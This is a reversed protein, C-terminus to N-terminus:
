FTLIILNPSVEVATPCAPVQKRLLSLFDQPNGQLTLRIIATSEAVTGWSFSASSTGPLNNIVDTLSEVLRIQERTKVNTVALRVTRGNNAIDSVAQQLRQHLPTAIEKLALRLTERRRYAESRATSTARGADNQLVFLQVGAPDYCAVTLHLRTGARGTRSHTFAEYEPVVEVRYDSTERDLSTRLSKGILFDSLQARADRDQSDVWFIPDGMAKLKGGLDDVLQDGSVVKAAIAVRVQGEEAEKSLLRYESVLGQTTAYTRSRIAADTAADAATIATGNVQAVASRCAAAIAAEETPGVGVARVTGPVEGAKAAGLAGAADKARESLLAIAVCAGAKEKTLVIRAGRLLSEIESKSYHALFSAGEYRTGEGTTVTREKSQSVEEASLQNSVFAALAKRAELQAKARAQAETLGALPVSGKVMVWEGVEADHGRASELDGNLLRLAQAEEDFARACAVGDVTAYVRMPMGGDIGLRSGGELAMEDVDSCAPIEGGCPAVRGQIGALCETVLVGLRKLAAARDATSVGGVCLAALAAGCMWAGLGKM